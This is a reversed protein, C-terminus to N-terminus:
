QSGRVRRHRTTQPLFMHYGQARPRVGATIVSGVNTDIYGIALMTGPISITQNTFRRVATGHATAIGNLLNGQM